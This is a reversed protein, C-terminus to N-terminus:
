NAVLGGLGLDDCRAVDFGDPVVVGESVAGVELLGFSIGLVGGGTSSRRKAEANERKFTLLSAGLEVGFACGVVSM